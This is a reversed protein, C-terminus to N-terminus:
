SVKLPKMFSCTVGILFIRFSLLLFACFEPLAIVSSYVFAPTVQAVVADKEPSLLRKTIVVVLLLVFTNTM